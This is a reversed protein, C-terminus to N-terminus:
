GGHVREGDVYTARVRTAGIEAPDGAFPDRDLVALDALADPALTGTEDLHNTRASGSTSAAFAQELTLAQEPLFPESGARGEEGYAWRNVAVHIAALPDPTTVPWDSGAALHAGARALDGFPYQWTSREEGLYPITMEVMQDDYHAWLAQINATVGLAAFRPVDGPHVVQLHAIHHRNRESAAPGNAACAAAFADLAERAARDGIAHVHVQFGEADLRTVHRQLAAADVFSLGLNDTAHGCADLYPTTMGATFNEAIGDQMIKVSGAVLRGRTYRERREILDDVQEEGLDRRWWLAGRVRATLTGAEVARLYAPSADAGGAYEGLIADQWATVGFGHLYSQAELLGAYLDDQSIPPVLHDVLHMAGEHLMGTPEGDADREIRGDPPDPTHRDIGALELARRNVWTGHHDRNVLVVPRDPVMASLDDARPGATGFVSMTWGGGIVWELEPHAAAYSAVAELYDERTELEALDCRLRLLGGQVPHVHADQFGPLVLGGALDVEEVREGTAVYSALDADPAVARVRGGAVVVGHGPRYTHGDFAAGGRLVLVTGSM